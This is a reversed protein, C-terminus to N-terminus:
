RHCRLYPGFSKSPAIGGPASVYIGGSKEAFTRLANTAIHGERTNRDEVDAMNVTYITTNAYLAAALARDTTASSHNDAGDSIVVIARRKEPRKALVQAASVIADNLSTVGKARLGFGKPVLDHSPSFDQILEVKSDFNYVAAVDEDRLGELFHIAAARALTMRQEMSGSTDLLIAAAFPTEEASFSTITQEQSDEFIKFDSRRLNHVYSGEGNVVTVNLVVLDTSVRVVDEDQQAFTRPYFPLSLATITFPLLFLLAVPTRLARM